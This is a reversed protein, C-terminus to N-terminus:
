HPKKLIFEMRLDCCQNKTFDGKEFKWKGDIFRYRGPNDDVLMQYPDSQGFICQMENVLYGKDSEFIDVAQSYFLHKDTIIKVFDLLQLPPNEYKKISTGSAKDGSKMKKHAFFSDGIRVVRWEFSHPVYEQLIIFGFQKDNAIANYTNLRNILQKPQKIKYWLRQLIKRQDFNPGIRAQLGGKFATEIYELLESKTRIIKVGKGSAGINLKGVVSFTINDIYNLVEKKNYFIHTQPHPIKNAKAWYAFFRKNEYIKLENYSPFININLDHAIVDVREQYLTRFISTKGSPKLLCVLPEFSRIHELWNSSTLDIINYNIKDQYANCAKEWHLHDYPDENKLIAIKIKGM